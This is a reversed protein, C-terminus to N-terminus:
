RLRLIQASPPLHKDNFHKYYIDATLWLYFNKDAVLWVVFNPGLGLGCVKYM